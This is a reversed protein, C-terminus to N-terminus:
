GSSYSRRWSVNGLDFVCRDCEGDDGEVEKIKGEVGQLGRQTVEKEIHCGRLLQVSCVSPVALHGVRSVDDTKAKAEKRKSTHWYESKKTAVLEPLEADDTDDKQDYRDPNRTPRLLFLGTLIVQTDVALSHLKSFKSQYDRVCEETMAFEGIDQSVDVIRHHLEGFGDSAYTIYLHEREHAPLDKFSCQRGKNVSRVEPEGEEKIRLNLRM